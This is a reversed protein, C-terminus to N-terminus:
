AIRTAILKQGGSSGNVTGAHLVTMRLYIVTGDSAVVLIGDARPNAASGGTAQRRDYFTSSTSPTGATTMVDMIAGVDISTTPNAFGRANILYVGKNLTLQAMTYTTNNVMSNQQVGTAELKEGIYGSPLTEGAGGSNILSKQTM